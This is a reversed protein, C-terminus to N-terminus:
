IDMLKIVVDAIKDDSNEMGLPRINNQLKSLEEENHILDLLKQFLMHPADSNRVIIAADHQALAIANKTQHDEAATPLPVLVCAKGTLCIESVAIAGARSVVLDAAAYALDMQAIFQHVKIGKSHSHSVAEAVEQFSVKGTQWILQIQNEDFEPIHPILSDNVAKAGLSGGVVLVTKISPDLGFFEFAKERKGEISVVEKRVPNGTLVVKEAPFFREMDEYAVCVKDVTKGLLKNTIGAYSNQEQVVTPIGNMSAIKLMPGSAYGGTGVVVNPKFKKLISYAKWLSSIVKIPFLLNKFSLNRQIGSIWLGEIRYGAKPVQEMEMRGKAGVFLVETNPHRKKIANAIAIAPFIHGGTGGGSIIVKPSPM